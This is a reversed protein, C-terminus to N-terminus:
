DFGSVKGHLADFARGGVLGVIEGIGFRFKSFRFSFALNRFVARVFRQESFIARIVLM